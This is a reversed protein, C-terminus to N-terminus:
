LIVPSFFFQCLCVGLFLGLTRLLHEGWNVKGVINTNTFLCVPHTSPISVVCEKGSTYVAAATSNKRSRCRNKMVAASSINIIYVYVSVAAENWNTLSM